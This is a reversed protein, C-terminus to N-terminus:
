SGLETELRRAMEFEFLAVYFRGNLEFPKQLYLARGTFGLSPHRYHREHQVAAYPLDYVVRIVDVVDKPDPPPVREVRGNDRLAGTLVPVFAYADTLLAEAVALLAAEAAKVFAGKLREGDFAASLDLAITGAKDVM